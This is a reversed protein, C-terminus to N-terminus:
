GSGDDLAACVHRAGVSLSVIIRGAGLAVDDLKEARELSDDGYPSVDGRGLQGLDNQGWCKAAGSTMLVCSFDRGAFVGSM